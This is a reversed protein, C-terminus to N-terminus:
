ETPKRGLKPKHRFLEDIHVIIGPSGLTIQTQLLKATCVEYLWVCINIARKQLMQFQINEPGCIARAVKVLSILKSFFYM